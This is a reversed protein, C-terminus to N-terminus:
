VKGVIKKIKGVGKIRELTKFIEVGYDGLLQMPKHLLIGFINQLNLRELAENVQQEVWKAVNENEPIAALKSTVQFDKSM